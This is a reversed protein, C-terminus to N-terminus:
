NGSFIGRKAALERYLDAYDGIMRALDFRAVAERRGADSFQTRQDPARLLRELVEVLGAVDQPEFLLGCKGDGILEPNGGVNTAVCPLGSAMAELLTNSMGECISPLVFIDMAKYLDSVELESGGFTVCGRLFASNEAYKRHKDLEPGGGVILAHVRHGRELLVEAARLLTPHDKIPVLRGVSGLVITEPSFGLRARMEARMTVNPAFLRTDVGNRIVRVREVSVWAQKCHYRQLDRSVTFVSDCLQYVGRRMLRRRLPLGSLMDLEYGHESHVVVPVRALRGAVAAEIAGWNRSHVIHPKYARMIRALRFVLFRFGGAMSGLGLLRERVGSFEAFEADFGRVACIRHQFIRRDLGNAIRIVGRETGGVGLSNIVHLVRLRGASDTEGAAAVNEARGANDSPTANQQLGCEVISPSKRM